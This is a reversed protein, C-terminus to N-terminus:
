FQTAGNVTAMEPMLSFGVTRIADAPLGTAKLANQLSTMADAAKQRADASRADRVEISVTLWARDPPRRMTAEGHTVIAPEVGAPGSLPSQAYAVTASALLAFLGIAIRSM